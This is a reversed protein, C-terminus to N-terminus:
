RMREIPVYVQPNEEIIPVAEIGCISFLYQFEWEAVETCNDFM